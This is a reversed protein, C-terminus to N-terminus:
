NIEVPIESAFDMILSNLNFISDSSNMFKIFENTFIQSKITKITNPTLNRTSYSGFYKNSSSPRVIYGNNIMQSIKDMKKEELENVLPIEISNNRSSYSSSTSDAKKLIIFEGNIEISDFNELNYLHTSIGNNDAFSLFKASFAFLTLTILTLILVTKKM